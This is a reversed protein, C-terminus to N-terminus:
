INMQSQELILNYLVITKPVIYIMVIHFIITFLDLYVYTVTSSFLALLRDSCILISKHSAATDHKTSFFIPYFLLMSRVSQALTTM